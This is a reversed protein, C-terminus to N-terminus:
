FGGFTGGLFELRRATLNLNPRTAFGKREGECFVKMTTCYVRLASGLLHHLGQHRCTPATKVCKTWIQRMGQEGHSIRGARTSRRGERNWTSAAQAKPHDRFTVDIAVATNM